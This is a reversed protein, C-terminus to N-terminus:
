DVSIAYRLLPDSTEILEEEGILMRGGESLAASRDGTYILWWMRRLLEQETPGSSTLDENAQPRYLQVDSGNSQERVSERDMQFNLASAVNM